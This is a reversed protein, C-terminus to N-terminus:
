DRESEGLSKALENREVIMENYTQNGLYSNTVTLVALSIKGSVIKDDTSQDDINDSRESMGQLKNYATQYDIKGDIYDDMTKLATIGCNYMEDSLENPRTNCATLMSLMLLMPILKKM